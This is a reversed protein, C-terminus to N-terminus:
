KNPLGGAEEKALQVFGWQLIKEVLQRESKMKKQETWFKIQAATSPKFKFIKTVSQNNEENTIM